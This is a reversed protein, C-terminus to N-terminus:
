RSDREMRLYFELVRLAERLAAAMKESEELSTRYHFNFGHVQFGHPISEYYPKIYNIKELHELAALGNGAGLNNTIEKISDAEGFSIKGAQLSAGIKRLLAASNPTFKTLESMIM